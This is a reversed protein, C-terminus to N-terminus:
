AGCVGELIANLRVFVRPSLSQDGVILIRVSLSSVLCMAVSATAKIGLGSSGLAQVNLSFEPPLTGPPLGASMFFLNILLSFSCSSLLFDSLFM